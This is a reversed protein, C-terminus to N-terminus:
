RACRKLNQPNPLQNPRKECRACIRFSEEMKEFMERQSKFTVPVNRTQLGTSFLSLTCASDCYKLNVNYFSVPVYSILIIQFM